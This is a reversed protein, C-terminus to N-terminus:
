FQSQVRKAADAFQAPNFNAGSKVKDYLVDLATKRREYDNLSHSLSEVGLVVQEAVAFDSTKDDAAYRVLMKRVNSADTETYSRVAWSDYSRLKELLSQAASRLTTPDAQGARILQDTGAALGPLSEPAIVAALAQLMVLNQKQLRLTGPNINPGARERTWRMNDTSHHCGFCDYFALEPIMGSSTLLPTQLLTLYRQANELQGTVWLNMGAIMGKRAIYDADIVYHRPQNATFAELEFSLRPHGAGMIVHTAFKDRTGLHCSLCLQARALPQDSPYMGLRVNESHPTKPNKHVELWKQAGGHCAECGVGDTRKFKPGAKDGTATDAHCDLCIKASQPNAIGLKGAIDLGPKSSLRNYAASHRDCQLWVFYERLAVDQEKKPSCLNAATHTGQVGSKGHCVGSACSAVGLHQFDNVATESGWGCPGFLGLTCIAIAQVCNLQTHPHLAHGSM